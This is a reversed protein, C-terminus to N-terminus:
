RVQNASSGNSENDHSDSPRYEYKRQKGSLRVRSIPEPVPSRNQGNVAAEDNSTVVLVADAKFWPSRM